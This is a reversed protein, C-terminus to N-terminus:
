QTCLYILSYTNLLSPSRRMSRSPLYLLMESTLYSLHNVTLASTDGSWMDHPNCGASVSLSLSQYLAHLFICTTNLSLIFSERNDCLPKIVVASSCLLDDRHYYTGSRIHTCPLCTPHSRPLRLNCPPTKSYRSILVSAIWANSNVLCHLRLRPNNSHTISAKQALIVYLFMTLPLAHMCICCLSNICLVATLSANKKKKKLLYVDDHLLLFLKRYFCIISSIFM